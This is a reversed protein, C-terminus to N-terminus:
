FTPNEGGEYRPHKEDRILRTNLNYWYTYSFLGYYYGWFDIDNIKM